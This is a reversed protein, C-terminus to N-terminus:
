LKLMLKWFLLGGWFFKIDGGMKTIRIVSFFIGTGEERFPAYVLPYLKIM